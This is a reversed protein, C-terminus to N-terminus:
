PLYIRAGEECFIAAASHNEGRRRFARERLDKLL